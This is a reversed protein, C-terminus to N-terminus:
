GPRGPVWGPERHRQGRYPAKLIVPLVVMVDIAADHPRSTMNIQAASAVHSKVSPELRLSADLMVVMSASSLIVSTQSPVLLKSLDLLTFQRHGMRAEILDLVENM